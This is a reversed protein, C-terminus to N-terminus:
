KEEDEEPFDYGYDDELLSKDVAGEKDQGDADSDHEAGEDEEGDSETDAETLEDVPMDYVYDAPANMLFITYDCATCDIAIGSVHNGDDSFMYCFLPEGVHSAAIKPDIWFPNDKECGSSLIVDKSNNADRVTYVGDQEAIVLNRDTYEMMVDFASKETGTAEYNGEAPEPLGMIANDDDVTEYDEDFISTQGDDVQQLVFKEEDDDWVMVYEGSLQGTAKDKIQLVSSVEHKFSPKNYDRNMGNINVFGKAISINLTLTVKADSAGKLQMNNLTRNLVDDFDKKLAYFTDENLSLIKGTVHNVTKNM